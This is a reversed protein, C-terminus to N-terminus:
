ILSKSNKGTEFIIEKKKKEATIVQCHTGIENQSIVTVNSRKNEVISINNDKSNHGM